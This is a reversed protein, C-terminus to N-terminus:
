FRVGGGFFWGRMDLDADFDRSTATGFVDMLLYRYGFILDFDETAQLRAMAEADWYRGNGDGLDASMLGVNAGITLCEIPSFEAEAFPMPVFVTTDVSERGGASRAAISLSEFGVQGGVGVRYSPEQLLAYSYSAAVSFFRLSTTVASGAPIGGYDGALVGSGEAEIGFGHTRVRHAEHDWQLRLYPSGEASGLGMQNELSNREEHLALSGGADQLAISGHYQVFMAGADVRYTDPACSALLVLASALLTTQSKKM